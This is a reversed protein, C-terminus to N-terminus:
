LGSSHSIAAAAGGAAASASVAAAELERDSVSMLESDLVFRATSLEKWMSSVLPLLTVLQEAKPVM